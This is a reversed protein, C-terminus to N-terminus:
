FGSSTEDTPASESDGETSLVKKQIFYESADLRPETLSQQVALPQEDMGGDYLRGRAKESIADRLKPDDAAKAVSGTGLIIAFVCIWFFHKM